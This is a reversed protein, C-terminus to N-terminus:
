KCIIDTTNRINDTTIGDNDNLLSAFGGWIGYSLDYRSPPLGANAKVCHTLTGKGGEQPENLYRWGWNCWGSTNPEERQPYSAWRSGGATPIIHCSEFEHNYDVTDAEVTRMAMIKYVSGDANTVYVYGSDDGNIKDDYPLVSIFENFWRGNAGLIYRNTDDVCEYDTGIQGSWNGAGRCGEPYRGYKNKYLEVASQLMRLDAQRKADRSIKGSEVANVSIVAALIGIIAIVVLVEILTLGRLTNLPRNYKM